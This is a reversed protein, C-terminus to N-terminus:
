CVHDTMLELAGLEGQQADAARGSERASAPNDGLQKPANGANCVGEAEAHDKAPLTVVANRWPLHSVAPSSLDQERCLPQRCAQPHKPSPSSDPMSLIQNAHPSNQSPQGARFCLPSSLCLWATDPGKEGEIVEFETEPIGDLLHM